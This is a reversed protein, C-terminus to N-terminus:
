VSLHSLTDSFNLLVATPRWDTDEMLEYHKGARPEEGEAPCDLVKMWGPTSTLQNVQWEAPIM